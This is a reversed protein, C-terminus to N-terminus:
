GVQANAISSSLLIDEHLFLIAHREVFLLLPWQLFLQLASTDYKDLSSPTM